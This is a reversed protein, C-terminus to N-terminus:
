LDIAASKYTNRTEPARTGRFRPLVLRGPHRSGQEWGRKESGGAGWRQVTDEALSSHECAPHREVAKGAVAGFTPM